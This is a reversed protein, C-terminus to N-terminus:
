PCRRPAARAADRCCRSGVGVGSRWGSQQGSRRVLMRSGDRRHHHARPLHRGVIVVVVVVRRSRDVGQEWQGWM